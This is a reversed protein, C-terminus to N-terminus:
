TCGMTPPQNDLHMEDVPVYSHPMIAPSIMSCSCHNYPAQGMETTPSILTHRGGCQVSADGGVQVLVLAWDMQAGPAQLSSSVNANSSRNSGNVGCVYPLHQPCHISCPDGNSPVRYDLPSGMVLGDAQVPHRHIGLLSVTPDSDGLPVIASTYQLCSALCLPSKVLLVTTVLLNSTLHM